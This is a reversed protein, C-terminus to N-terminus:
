LHIGIEFLPKKFLSIPNIKVKIECNINLISDTDDSVVNKM